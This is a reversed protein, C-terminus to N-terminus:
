GLTRKIYEILGAEVSEYVPINVKAMTPYQEPSATTVVIPLSPYETRYQRAIESGRKEWQMAGELILMDLGEIGKKLRHYLMEGNRVVEIDYNPLLNKYHYVKETGEAILIKKKDAM